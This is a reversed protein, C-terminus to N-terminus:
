GFFHVLNDTRASLACPIIGVFTCSPRISRLTLFSSIILAILSRTTNVLAIVLARALAYFYIELMARPRLISLPPTCKLIMFHGGLETIAM